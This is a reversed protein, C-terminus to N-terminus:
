ARRGKKSPKKKPGLIEALKAIDEQDDASDLRTYTRSTLHPSSHRAHRQAKQLPIGARAMNSIFSVRLCHFDLRAEKWDREKDWKIGAYDIDRRLTSCSPISPLAFGEEVRRKFSSAERGKWNERPWFSNPKDKFELWIKKLEEAIPLSAQKNNKSISARVFIFGRDFDIDSWKLALMEGRRLGTFAAVLYILKRRKPSEDFLARLEEPRLSRREFSKKLPPTKVSKCPNRKEWAEERILWDFFRTLTKFHAIIIRSSPSKLPKREAEPLDLQRQNFKNIEESFDSRELTKRILQPTISELDNVSMLELIRIIQHETDQIYREVNGLTKLHNIWSFVLAALDEKPQEKPLHFGLTAAAKQRKREERWSTVEEWAKKEAEAKSLRRTSGRIPVGEEYHYFSWYRSEKGKVKRKFLRM